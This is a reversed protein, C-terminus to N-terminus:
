FTSLFLIRGTPAIQLINLQKTKARTDCSASLNWSLLVPVAINPAQPALVKM